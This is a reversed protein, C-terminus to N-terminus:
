PALFTLKESFTAYTSLRHSRMLVAKARNKEVFVNTSTELILICHLQCGLNNKCSKQASSLIQYKHAEPIFSIKEVLNSPLFSMLYTCDARSTKCACSLAWTWGRQLAIVLAAFPLYVYINYKKWSLTSLTKASNELLM